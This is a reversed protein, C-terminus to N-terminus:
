REEDRDDEKHFSCDDNVTSGPGAEESTRCGLTCGTTTPGRSRGQRLTQDSAQKGDSSTNNLGRKCGGCSDSRETTATAAACACSTGAPRTQTSAWPSPSTPQPGEADERGGFIYPGHYNTQPFRPSPPTPTRVAELADFESPTFDMETTILRSLDEPEPSPSEHRWKWGVVHSRDGPVEWHEQWDGREKWWKTVQSDQGPNPRGHQQWPIREKREIHEYRELSYTFWPRSTIFSEAESASADESLRSRPPPVHREGYDLNKRLQVARSVPHQPDYPPPDTDSQWRWSWDDTRDRPQPDARDPIGWEPNWIGLRQWRKRINRRVIVARRKQGPELGLFERLRSRDPLRMCFSSLREYELRTENRYRTGPSYCHSINLSTVLNDSEENSLPQRLLAAFDELVAEQPRALVPHHLAGESESESSSVYPPPDDREFRTNRSRDLRSPDAALVGLAPMAQATIANQLQSADLYRPM